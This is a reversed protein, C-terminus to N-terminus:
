LAPLQLSRPFLRGTSSSRHERKRIRSGCGYGARGSGLPAALHSAVNQVSDLRVPPAPMLAIKNAVLISGFTNAPPVTSGAILINGNGDPMAARASFPRGDGLYTSYLLNSLNSDFAAVFGSESSFSEQFPAHTPFAKSDTYGSVIVAGSADIAISNAADPQEGGLLTAALLQTLRSDFKAVLCRMGFAAALRPESVSPNPSRTQPVPSSPEPRRPPVPINQPLIPALSTCMPHPTSRWPRSRASLPSYPLFSIRGSGPQSEIKVVSASYAPSPVSAQLQPRGCVVCEGLADVVLSQAQACSIRKITQPSM